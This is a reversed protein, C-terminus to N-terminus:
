QCMSKDVREFLSGAKNEFSFCALLPKDSPTIVGAPNPKDSPTIVGVHGIEGPPTAAVLFGVTLEPGGKAGPLCESKDVSEVLGGDVNDWSLCGVIRPKDSPTIVGAILVFHGTEEINPATIVAGVLGRLDYEVLGQAEVPESSQLALYALSLILAFLTNKFMKIGKRKAVGTISPYYIM